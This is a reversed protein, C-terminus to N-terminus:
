LIRFMAAGGESLVLEAAVPPGGDWRLRQQSPDYQVGRRQFVVVYDGSRVASSPPMTNAWPDFFVNYPYLHYAGRDRFYHEDGVMFVRVPPPPLKARVKEIFAFVMKDDAALHREEWSKGAYQRKTVVAQHYLNWQLRTDVAFWAAVFMGGIVLAAAARISAPGWRALAAYLLAALAVIVAFSFPMPLDQVDAGGIITNISAGNWAEFTFWERMRDRLVENASMTKATAGRLVIPQTFTGKFGLALGSITGNWNQDDELTFPMIRGAEVALRRNFVRSPEYDSRWLLAVELDEPVGSSQWAIVPYSSSRLSTTLSVLTTGSADPATLVLGEPGLKGVGRSVVMESPSWRISPASTFWSGQVVFALYVLLCLALSTALLGCGVVILWRPVATPPVPSPPLQTGPAAVPPAVPREVIDTV